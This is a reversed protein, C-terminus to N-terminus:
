SRRRSPLLYAAARALLRAAAGSRLLLGIVRLLPGPRLYFSLFAKRQLRKMTPRDISDPPAPCATNHFAEWGEGPLRNGSLWLDGDESGPIPLFSSFQAWEIGSRVAFRITERVDEETECPMGLIFYGAVPLGHDHIQRVKQLIREKTVGKRVARLVRDSGSEIGCHVIYWGARRMLELLRDDLSDLRVGNPTSFLVPLDRALAEECFAAAYERDMTFNDDEIHIERVGYESVLLEIEEWVLALPRRRLKRGTIRFGACFTCRFPCGRTTLIPAYPQRRLVVGNPLGRYLGPPALHWAPLPLSGLDDVHRPSVPAPTERLAVGQPLPEGPRRELMELASEEAEGAFVADVCPLDEFAATGRCSAHPGGLWVPVDGLAERIRPLESRLVHVDSTFASVMLLDPCTGAVDATLEDGDHGSLAADVLAVRHGARELAAALYLLGVPPVLNTGSGGGRPPYLLTIRM